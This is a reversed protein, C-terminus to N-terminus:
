LCTVTATGDEGAKGGGLTLNCAVYDNTFTNTITACLQNGGGDVDAVQTDTFFDVALVTKASEVTLLWDTANRTLTIEFDDYQTFSPVDSCDSTFHTDEQVGNTVVKQWVCPSGSVQDLTHAGNISVGNLTIKFWAVDVFFCDECNTVGSFIVEYQSNNVDDCNSCNVGDDSCAQCCGGCGEITYTQENGM